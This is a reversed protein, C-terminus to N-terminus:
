HLGHEKKLNNIMESRETSAQWMARFYLVLGIVFMCFFILGYNPAAFALDSEPPEYSLYGYLGGGILLISMTTQFGYFRLAYLMTKM